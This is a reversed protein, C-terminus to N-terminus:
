LQATTDSPVAPDQTPATANPDPTPEPAPTVPPMTVVGTKPDLPYLTVGDPALVGVGIKATIAPYYSTDALVRKVEVDDKYYVKYCEATIQNHPERVNKPAITGAPLLPDAVYEPAGPPTESILKGEIKITMGDPVPRGYLEVTVTQNKYYAHLAIPYETNNTFGFNKGGWTVTADTGKPVYTSPWTHPHREDVQLDAKMVTHFMTGSVQCIGGGLEQRTTGEYIGTAEKYGKEATREGVFENYDFSEGPQLVLADITKCVLDINTNRNADATTNTVSKAIFGLNERLMESTVQPQIMDSTVTIVASYQGAAVATCIDNAATDAHYTIGVQAEDIVFALSEVDFSTASANKVETELPDLISHVAAATKLPDATYTTSFNRPTSALLSVTDYREALADGEEMLQSTRGVTFAEDVVAALNSSIGIQNVDVPYEINQVSLKYSVVPIDLSPTGAFLLLAEEKTKGSVDVGNISIGTYFRDTDLALKMEEVTLSLTEGSPDKVQYTKERTMFFYVATGVASLIVLSILAVIIARQATKKTSKRKKMTTLCWFREPDNRKAYIM